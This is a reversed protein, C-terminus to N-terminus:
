WGLVTLKVQYTGAAAFTHDATKGSGAASGDGFDWAYTLTDGDPDSSDGADVSIDLGTKELGFAAVPARNFERGSKIYHDVVQAPTLATPYVAVDDITGKYKNSSGANPWGNLNDGGIRWYGSYPQASTTSIDRGILAGDVYLALGESSLTGVVHHWQGNNFGPVSSVTRVGGPYAGVTIRGNNSMYIHRDYSSSDATRSNGFGIIKGGTTSTTNIWAELSFTQPGTTLSTNVAPVGTAGPFTSAANTDGTATFAGPTGRTVTSALTLDDAGAWDYATTGSAEGLRWYSTAGDALVADRYPSATSSGTPVTISAASGSGGNGFADYVRIRYSVTAGPTAGTDTYSVMPRDWWESDKTLTAIVTSGRLVEYRLNRNDRDWAAKWSVRVTGPALSVLTPVSQIDRPGQKNTALSSVGMRVLGQQGAGNVKPFEGGLVVYDSNGEVTWAAQSQGTFTGVDLTPSFHLLRPKPRGPFDGGLTVGDAFSTTALVREFTWPQTQPHGGISSCNHPHGVSYLVDGIPLADYTDGKCTNMWVLSGDTAAAAFSGEFPSPGYYDYATGYVKGGASQLSFIAADGGNTTTFPTYNKIIQNVLWPRNEGTTADVAGMGFTEVGNLLRFHGGVVVTGTGAPVTVARVALDTTPAWSTLVGTATNVAALRGRSTNRITSFNGGMYLTSGSVALDYVAANANAQFGTDTAGTTLNVAAVRSRTTGNVTSFDGALFIRTGDTAISKGQGNLVPAWTPDLQGTRIDFALANSRPTLSTGSAAGAPRANNFRGTVYVKNGLVVQDWVVGDVQVTPLADATVTSVTEPAVPASDAWGPAAVLATAVAAGLAASVLRRTTSRMWGSMSRGGM